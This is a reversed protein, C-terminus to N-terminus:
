GTVPIGDRIPAKHMAVQAIPRHQVFEEPLAPEIGHHVKGGEDLNALQHLLRGAVVAVVDDIREVQELCHAGKTDLAKNERRGRGGEALRFVGRDILSMGLPWYVGVPVALQHNFLHQGIKVAGITELRDAQAVEVGGPSIGFPLEALPVVGFGVQDRQDQLGGGPAPGMDGDEPAIVVGRIAGADAIVDMYHIQAFSMPQRQVGQDVTRRALGVVQPVPCPKGHLLHDVGGDTNGLARDFYDIRWATRAIRIAQHGIGGQGALAKAPLGPKGIQWRDDPM